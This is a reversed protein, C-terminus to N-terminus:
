VGGIDWKVFGSMLFRDEVWSVDRGGLRPGGEGSWRRGRIRAM